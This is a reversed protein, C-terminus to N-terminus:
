SRLEVFTVCVPEAVQHHQDLQTPVGTEADVAFGILSGSDQNAVVMTGGSPHLAFNRPSTGGSPVHAVPELSRGSFTFVAISDHGRNSVYVFEGQPDVRVEAAISFGEFDPPLTSVTAVTSLAGSRPDVEVATITNDLEGVLFGVPLRPHWALHRPGSGPALQLRSEVTGDAAYNVVADIGLDVAVFGPRSCHPVVCHVHPSHQRDTPGSGEHRATALLDGIRGDLELQYAAVTGSVYNAVYLHRGDADVSVYCPADGESPVNHIPTLSGDSPDIALAHVSGGDGRGTSTESVAYLTTGSPHSALFSPNEVGSLEGLEALEGNAGADFIHIGVPRQNTYCGVYLFTRVPM